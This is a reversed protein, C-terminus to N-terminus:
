GNQWVVEALIAEAGSTLASMHPMWPNSLHLIVTTVQTCAWTLVAFKRRFYSYALHLM